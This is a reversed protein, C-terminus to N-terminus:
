GGGLFYHAEVQYFHGMLVASTGGTRIFLYKTIMTFDLLIDDGTPILEGVTATPNTDDWRARIDATELRGKFSHAGAPITSPSGSEAFSLLNGATATIVYHGFDLATPTRPM